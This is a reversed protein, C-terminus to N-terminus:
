YINSNIFCCYSIIIILYRWWMTIITIAKYYWIHMWFLAEAISKNEIYIISKVFDDRYQCHLPLVWCHHYALTTKDYIIAIFVLFLWYVSFSPQTVYHNHIYCIMKSRASYQGSPVQSCVVLSNSDVYKAHTKFKLSLDDYRQNPLM